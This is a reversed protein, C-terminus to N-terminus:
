RVPRPLAPTTAGASSGALAARVDRMAAPLDSVAVEEAVRGGLFVFVCEAVPEGTAQELAVAYAAGQLRYRAVKAALEADDSWADTKYDVVVLGDPRRYVLDVYGELTTGDVPPAVYLERHFGHAVAEQVVRTTLALRARAAVADERGVIGEAAAQAAAADDLGAGTALDVTQLVAHVARGLATGYRGKNWPPLELDRPGKALGPDPVPTGVEADRALATASVVRRRM